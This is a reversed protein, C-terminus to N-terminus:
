IYYSIFIYIYINYIFIYFIIRVVAVPCSCIWCLVLLIIAFCNMNNVAQDGNFLDFIQFNVVTRKYYLRPLFCKHSVETSSVLM